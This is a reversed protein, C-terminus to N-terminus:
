KQLKRMQYINWTLACNCLIIICTIIYGTTTATWEALRILLNLNGELPFIIESSKPSLIPLERNITLKAVFM